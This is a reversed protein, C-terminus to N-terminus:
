NLSASDFETKIVFIMETDMVFNLCHQRLPFSVAHLSTLVNCPLSSVERYNSPDPYPSVSLSLCLPLITFVSGSLCLSFYLSLSVSDSVSLCLVLPLSLSLPGSLNPLDPDWFVKQMCTM